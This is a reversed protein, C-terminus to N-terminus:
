DDEMEDNLDEASLSEIVARATKQEKTAPRVRMRIHSRGRKRSVPREEVQHDDSWLDDPMVGRSLYNHYATVVAADPQLVNKRRRPPVPFTRPAAPVDPDVAPKSEANIWPVTDNGVHESDSPLHELSDTNSKQETARARFTIGAGGDAFCPSTSTAIPARPQSSARDHDAETSITAGTLCLEAPSM